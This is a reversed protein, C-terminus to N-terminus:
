YVLLSLSVQNVIKQITDEPLGTKPDIVVSSAGAETTQDSKSERKHHDRRESKKVVSDPEQQHSRAPVYHQNQQHRSHHFRHPHHHPQIPVPGLVPVNFPRQHHYMHLMGHPPPPPIIMRQPPPPPTTRGPVFEPAGANLRSSSLSRLLSPDSSTSHSLDDSDLTQQDAMSSQNISQNVLLDLSQSHSLIFYLKSRQLPFRRVSLSYIGPSPPSLSQFLSFLSKRKKEEQKPSSNEPRLPRRKTTYKYFPSKTRIGVNLCFLVRVQQQQDKFIVNIRTEVTKLRLLQFCLLCVFSESM